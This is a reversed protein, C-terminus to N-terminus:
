GSRQLLTDKLLPLRFPHPPTVASSSVLIIDWRYATASPSTPDKSVPTEDSHMLTSSLQPQNQHWGFFLKCFQLTLSIGATIIQLTSFIGRPSLNLSSLRSLQHSLPNLPAHNCPCTNEHPFCMWSKLWSSFLFILDLLQFSSGSMKLNSM